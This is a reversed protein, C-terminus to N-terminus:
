RAWEPREILSEQWPLDLVSFIREGDELRSGSVWGYPAKKPPYKFGFWGGDKDKAIFAINKPLTDWETGIPRYNDYEYLDPKKPDEPIIGEAYFMLHRKKFDSLETKFVRLYHHGGTNWVECYRGPTLYPDKPLPGNMEEILDGSLVRGDEMKVTVKM